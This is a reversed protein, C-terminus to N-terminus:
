SNGNREEKEDKRTQVVLEEDLERSLQLILLFTSFDPCRKQGHM